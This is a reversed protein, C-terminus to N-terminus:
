YTKAPMGAQSLADILQTSTLKAGSQFQVTLTHTKPYVTVKAIGPLKELTSQATKGTEQDAIAPVSLAMAGSYKMGGGMMHPTRAVTDAVQTATIVNEDFQLKASKSAWDVKASKIGKTRSLSSEVTRTCPPCHLGSIVFTAATASSPPAEDARAFSPAFMAAITLAIAIRMVYRENHLAARREAGVAFQTVM